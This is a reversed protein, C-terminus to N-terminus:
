FADLTAMSGEFAREGNGIAEGRAKDVGSYAKDVGIVIGVGPMFEATNITLSKNFDDWETASGMKPRMWNTFNQEFNMFGDVFKEWANKKFVKSVVAGEEGWQLYSNGNRKTLKYDEIGNKEAYKRARKESDAGSPDAYYIPNNDFASYTSFQPPTVPAISLQRGLRADYQRFTTTYSNGSGKVEDDKEMGNFSYRYDGGGFREPMLMGFSYYDLSNEVNFFRM